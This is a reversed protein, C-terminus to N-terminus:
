ARRFLDEYVSAYRDVGSAVDYEAEALRRARDRAHEDQALRAVEIGASRIESAEYSNLVVGARYRRVLDDADGLGENVVVPLGCALYEALKIPSSGLKAVGRALLAIGVHARGLILPMEDYEVSQVEVGDELGHASVKARVLAHEGRNLVLFRLAPLAQRAESYVRLMEDLLYTMGLSGSYVLTPVPDRRDAVRFRSLDVGCPIVAIQKGRVDSAYRPETRLREAARETLVVIAAARRLLVTEASRLARYRLDSARWHGGEVYEEGLFGRMDFIFPRGTLTGVVAAILAPVHSRAHLIRIDKRLTLGVTVAIGLALDHAKAALDTGSASPIRHWQTRHFEGAPFRPSGREFTLLEAIIGREQLGRLYPLVQSRVLATGIGNQSIYLVKM